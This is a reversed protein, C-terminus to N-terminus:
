IQERATKTMKVLLANASTAATLEATLDEDSFSMRKAKQQIVAMAEDHFKGLLGASQNVPITAFSPLASFIKNDAM